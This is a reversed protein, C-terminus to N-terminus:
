LFSILLHVPKGLDPSVQKQMFGNPGSAEKYSIGLLPDTEATTILDFLGCNLDQSQWKSAIHGQVVQKVGRLKLIKM